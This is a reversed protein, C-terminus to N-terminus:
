LGAPRAPGGAVASSSRGPSAAVAGGDRLVWAATARGLSDMLGPNERGARVVTPIM